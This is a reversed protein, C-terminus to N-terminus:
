FENKDGKLENLLLDVVCSCNKVLAEIQEKNAKDIHLGATVSVVCSFAKCIRMAAQEAPINDRHGPVTMVSCSALVGEANDKCPVALAVAGIHARGAKLSVALDKGMLQAELFVRQEGEGYYLSIETM